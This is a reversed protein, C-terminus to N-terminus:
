ASLIDGIFNVLYGFIGINFLAQHALINRATQSADGLVVLKNYVLFETLPSATMVLYAIGAILAAM